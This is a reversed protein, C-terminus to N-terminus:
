TSISIWISAWSRSGATIGSIRYRVVVREGDLKLIIRLTTHTAPHQQGYNLTWLYERDDEDTPLTDALTLPM